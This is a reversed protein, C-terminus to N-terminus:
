LTEEKQEESEVIKRECVSDLIGNMITSFAGLWGISDCNVM